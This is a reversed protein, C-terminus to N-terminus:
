FLCYVCHFSHHYKGTIVEHFTVCNNVNWISASTEICAVRHDDCTVQYINWRRKLGFLTHCDNLSIKIHYFAVWVKKLYTHWAINNVISYLWANRYRCNWNPIWTLITSDFWSSFSEIIYTQNVWYYANLCSTTDILHIEARYKSCNIWNPVNCHTFTPSMM